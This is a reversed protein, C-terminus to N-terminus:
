VPSIMMGFLNYGTFEKLNGELYERDYRVIEVTNTGANLHARGALTYRIDNWMDKDNYPMLTREDIEVDTGNVKVGYMDALANDVRQSTTRIYIAVDTVEEAFIEYTVTYEAYGAESGNCSIAGDQQLTIKGGSATLAEGESVPLYACDCKETCDPDACDADNCLGCIECVSACDRACIHATEDCVCKDACMGIDCSDDTCKGCYECTTTCTHSIVDTYSHPAVIVGFFNYTYNGRVSQDYLAELNLREIRVANNGAGLSIEITTRGNNGWDVSDTGSTDMMVDDSVNVKEGNVYVGYVDNFAVAENRASTMFTLSAAADDTSYLNYTVIYKKYGASHNTASLNNESSNKSVSGGNSDIVVVDDSMVTFESWRPLITDRETIEETCNEDAFLKGCSPCSWYGRNGAAELSSEVPEVYVPEHTHVPPIEEAADAVITFDAEYGDFSATYDNEGEALTVNGVIAAEDASVDISSDGRSCVLTLSVDNKDFADGETYTKDAVTAVLTYDHGLPAITLAELTTEETASEDAFIKGCGACSWYEENGSSTCTAAVAETKVTEHTHAPPTEEGCAALGAVGLALVLALVACSIWRSRKM